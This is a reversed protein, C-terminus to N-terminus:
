KRAPRKRSPPRWSRGRKRRSGREESAVYSFVLTDPNIVKTPDTPPDAVMDNDADAFEMSGTRIPEWAFIREMFTSEVNSRDRSAGALYSLYMALLVAAIPLVIM